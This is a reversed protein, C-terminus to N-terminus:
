YLIRQLQSCFDTSHKQLYTIPKQNIIRYITGYAISFLNSCLALKYSTMGHFRGQKVGKKKHSVSDDTIM